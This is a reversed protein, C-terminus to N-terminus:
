SEPDSALRPLLSAQAPRFALSSISTALALGYVLVAPGEVALVGAALTVTAIRVLDVTIM